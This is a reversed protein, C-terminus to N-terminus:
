DLLPEVGEGGEGAGLLHDGGGGGGEHPGEEGGGSGGDPLPVQDGVVEPGVGGKVGVGLPLDVVGGLPPVGGEVNGLRGAAVQDRQNGGDCRGVVVGGGGGEGGGVGSGKPGIHAEGVVIGSGGQGGVGDVEDPSNPGGPLGGGAEAVDEVRVDDEDSLGELPLAEVEGVVDAEPLLVVVVGGVAAGFVAVGGALLDDEHSGVVPDEVQDVGVRGIPGVLPLFEPAKDGVLNEGGQFGDDLLVGVLVGHVPPDGGVVDALPVAGGPAIPPGHDEEAQSPAALSVVAEVDGVGGRRHDLPLEPLGEGPRFGVVHLVQAVGPPLRYHALDPELLVACHLLLPDDEQRSPVARRDLVGGSIDGGVRPELSLGEEDDLGVRAVKEPHEPVGGIAVVLGRGM